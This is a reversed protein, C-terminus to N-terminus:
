DQDSKDKADISVVEGTVADIRVTKDGLDVDFVLKCGVKELDVEEVVSGPVAALAATKAQEFTLKAQPLLAKGDDRAADDSDGDDNDDEDDDRDDAETKSEDAHVLQVVPAACALFGILAITVWFYKRVTM